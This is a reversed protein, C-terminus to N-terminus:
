CLSVQDCWNKHLLDKAQAVGGHREGEPEQHHCNTEQQLDENVEASVHLLISTRQRALIWRRNESPRGPRWEECSDPYTKPLYRHPHDTPSAQTAGVTQDGYDGCESTSRNPRLSGDEVIAVLQNVIVNPYQCRGDNCRECAACPLKLHRGLGDSVAEGTETHGTAHKKAHKPREKCSATCATMSNGADTLEISFRPNSSRGDKRSRNSRPADHNKPETDLVSTTCHQTEGM